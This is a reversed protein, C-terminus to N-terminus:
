RRSCAARGARGASLRGLAHHVRDHFDGARLHFALGGALHAVGRALDAIQHALSDKVMFGRGGTAFLTLAWGVIAM